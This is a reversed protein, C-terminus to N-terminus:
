SSSTTYVPGSLNRSFDSLCDICIVTEVGAASELAGDKRTLESGSVTILGPQQREGASDQEL